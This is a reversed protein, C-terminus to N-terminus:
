ILKNLEEKVIEAIHTHRHTGWHGKDAALHFIEPYLNQIDNHCDIISDCVLDQLCKDNSTIKKNHYLDDGDPGDKIWHSMKIDIMNKFYSNNKNHMIQLSNFTAFDWTTWILNINAMQCYQELMNISQTAMWYAVDPSVVQNIIHPAKSFKASSHESLYSFELYGDFLYHDDDEDWKPYQRTDSVLVRKNNPFTLREFNPFVCVIHKPHGYLRFYAFINNIITSVSAGPTGINAYSMGLSNAVQVGWIMEEPIGMGYTHSCGAILLDEDKKFENSRFTYENVKYSFEDQLWYHMNNEKGPRKGRIPEFFSTFFLQDLEMDNFKYKFNKGNEIAHDILNEQIELRHTFFSPFNPNVSM